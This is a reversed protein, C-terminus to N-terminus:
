GTTSRVWRITRIARAPWHCLAASTSFCAKCPHIQRGYESAIRRLDLVSVKVHPKQELVAKAIEVMRFSKSIEGPCTHESRSSGSILLFRLPGNPDDHQRQAEHIADRAALWDVVSLDYGPDTFAPGAKRTKPSKRSNAYAEWAADAVQELEKTLPECASDQFQNLFRRRFEDESLRPSPSGKRPELDTTAPKNPAPMSVENQPGILFAPPQKVNRAAANARLPLSVLLLAERDRQKSAPM